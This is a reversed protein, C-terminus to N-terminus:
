KGFLPILSPHQMSDSIHYVDGSGNAHVRRMNRATSLYGAIAQELIERSKLLLPYKSLHYM